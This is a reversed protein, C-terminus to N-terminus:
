ISTQLNAGHSFTGLRPRTGGSDKLQKRGMTSTQAIKVKSDDHKLLETPEKRQRIFRIGLLKVACIQPTYTQEHEHGSNYDSADWPRLTSYLIDATCTIFLCWM